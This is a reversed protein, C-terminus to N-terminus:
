KKFWNFSWWRAPEPAPPYEAQLPSLRTMMIEQKENETMMGM